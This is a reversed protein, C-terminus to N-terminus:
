WNRNSIEEELKCTNGHKLLGLYSAITATNNGRAQLKRLMRRKTSTRLVRHDPFHVWGLFDIGSGITEIVVKDEHLQLSLADCLFERIPKIIQGLEERDNSFIVFDDAYRIYHKIKLTHKVYRDFENMYVNAFLQSTLNGLPLGRGYEGIYFSGIIQRLLWLADSDHITKKLINFLTEHHVSAFFRRIDCKLVWCQKTNNNSVTYFFRQFRGLAAHTGKGTRCSFSDAIFRKNMPPYLVRHVAHHLLRDRVPAKHISRPKPDSVAFAAYGGHRYAHEMLDRHLALINDMLHLLFGQVDRKHRKGKIFEEWAEVLNEISTIRQFM